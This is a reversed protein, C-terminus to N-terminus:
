VHVQVCVCVCVGPSQLDRKWGTGVSHPAWSEPMEMARVKIVYTFGYVQRLSPSLVAWVLAAVVLEM